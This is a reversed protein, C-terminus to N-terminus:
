ITTFTAIPLSFKKDDPVYPEIVIKTQFENKKNAEGKVNSYEYVFDDDYKIEVNNCNTEFILKKIKFNKFRTEINIEPVIFEEYFKNTNNLEILNEYLCYKDYIEKEYKDDLFMELWGNNSNMNYNFPVNKKFFLNFINIIFNSKIEVITESKADLGLYDVCQMTIKCNQEIGM